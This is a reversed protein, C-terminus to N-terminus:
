PRYPLASLIRCINPVPSAEQLRVRMAMRRHTRLATIKSRPEQGPHRAQATYPSLRLCPESPPPPGCPVGGVRNCGPLFPGAAASFREQFGLARHAALERLPLDHGSRAPLAPKLKPSPPSNAPQSLVHRWRCTAPCSSRSQCQGQCAPHGAVANGDLNDEDTLVDIAVLLRVPNDGVFRALTILGELLFALAAPDRDV